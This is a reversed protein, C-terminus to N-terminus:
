ADHALDSGETIINQTSGYYYITSTGVVYYYIVGERDDLYKLIPEEKEEAIQLLSKFTKLRLQPIDESIIKDSIEVLKGKHKKDILYNEDKVEKKLTVQKIIPIFILILLVVATISFTYRSKIISLEKGFLIFSQPITKIEELVKIKSLQGQMPEGTYKIYQGSMEFPIELDINIEQIKEGKNDYVTGKVKPKITILYNSPRVLVEEEIAKTFSFIDELNLEIEEQLLLNSTGETNITRQRMLEFEREWMDKAVLSYTVGAVSEITVPEQSSIMSDINLILKDTIKTFIVGDPTVKGGRTYLTSPQVIAAYNFSTKEEITNKTIKEEIELPQRLVQIAFRTSIIWLVIILSYIIKRHIRSIKMPIKKNKLKM